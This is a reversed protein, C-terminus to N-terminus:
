CVSKNPGNLGIFATSQLGSPVRSTYPPSISVPSAPIVIADRWDVGVDVAVEVELGVGVGVTVGYGLLRM